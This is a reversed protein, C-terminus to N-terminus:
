LEHFYLDLPLPIPDYKSNSSQSVKPTWHRRAIAVKAFIGTKMECEPKAHFIMFECHGCQLKLPVM